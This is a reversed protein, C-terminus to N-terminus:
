PKKAQQNKVDTSKIWGVIGKETKVLYWESGNGTSQIMPVLLDGQSLREIENTEDDQRSYLPATKVAVVLRVPLAQGAADGMGHVVGGRGQQIGAGPLSRGVGGSGRPVGGLVRGYEGIGQAVGLPLYILQSMIALIIFWKNKM